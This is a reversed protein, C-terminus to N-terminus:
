SFIIQTRGLQHIPQHNSSDHKHIYHKIFDQPIIEIWYNMLPDFETEGYPDDNPEFHIGQTFHVGFNNIFDLDIKPGLGREREQPDDTPFETYLIRIPYNNEIASQVIKMYEGKSMLKFNIENEPSTPFTEDKSYNVKGKYEDTFRYHTGDPLYIYLDYSEEDLIFDFYDILTQIAHQRPIKEKRTIINRVEDTQCWDRFEQSTLCLNRISRLDLEEIIRLVNDTNLTEIFEM